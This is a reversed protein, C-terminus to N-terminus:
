LGGTLRPGFIVGVSTKITWYYEEDFIFQKRTKVVVDDPLLERLRAAALAPGAGAKLKILGLSAQDTNRGPFFRVFNTDSTVVTGDSGFGCGLEFLGVM